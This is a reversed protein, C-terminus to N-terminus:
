TKLSQIHYIYVNYLLYIQQWPRFIYIQPPRASGVFVGEVDLLGPQISGDKEVKRVFCPSLRLEEFNVNEM